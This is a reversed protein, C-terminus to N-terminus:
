HASEDSRGYIAPTAPVTVELRTGSGPTSQIDLHGGFREIRARMGALGLHGAREGAAAVPDFGVGDDTVIVFVCDGDQRVEISVQHAAAHKVVNHLAEQCVRYLAEELELNLGPVEAELVVPLGTRSEVAAVHKSLAAALGEDALSGPRMEFILARMEALAEQALERLQALKEGVAGPDSRLLMEAARSTLTMGFLAQTVSDHLEQALHARERSAALEIAQHRLEREMRDREGTDRVSGHAGAWRGDVVTAIMHLEVPVAHGDRHKLNCRFLLEKDPHARQENLQRHIEEDTSPHHVLESDLGVLEDAAWGLLRECTANVFTFRGQADISWVVDPSGEVLYRYRAEAAILGRSLRANEIAFASHAAFARLLALEFETFTRHRRDFVCFVGLPGTDGFMPVAVVSTTGLHEANLRRSEPTWFRDDNVYDETVVVRGTRIALGSMGDQLNMPEIQSEAHARPALGSDYTWYLSDDTRETLYVIAVDVELLRRADDVAQQLLEPLSTGPRVVGGSDGPAAPRRDAEIEDVGGM